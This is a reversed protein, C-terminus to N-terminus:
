KVEVIKDGEQEQYNLGVALGKPQSSFQWAVVTRPTNVLVKVHHSAGGAVEMEEVEQIDSDLLTGPKSSLRNETEKLTGNSMPTTSTELTALKARLASVDLRPDGPSDLGVPFVENRPMAEIVCFEDDPDTIKSSSTTTSTMTYTINTNSLVPDVSYEVSNELSVRESIIRPTKVLERVHQLLSEDSGDLPSLHLTSSDSLSVGGPFTNILESQRTNQPDSTEPNSPEEDLTNVLASAQPVRLSLIKDNCTKCVRVPDSTTFYFSPM